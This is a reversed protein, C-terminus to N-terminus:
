IKYFSWNEEHFHSYLYILFTQILITKNLVSKNVSFHLAAKTM